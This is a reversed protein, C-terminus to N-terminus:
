KTSGNKDGSTDQGTESEKSQDVSKKLKDADVKITISDKIERDLSQHAEFVEAPDAWELEQMSKPMISGDDREGAQFDFNEASTERVDGQGNRVMESVSLAHIQDTQNAPYSIMSSGAALSIPDVKNGLCGTICRLFHRSGIPLPCSFVSIRGSSVGREEPSVDVGSLASTALEDSKKSM